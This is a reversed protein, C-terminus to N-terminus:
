RAALEQLVLNSKNLKCQNYSYVYAEFENYHVKSGCMPSWESNNKPNVIAGNILLQKVVNIHGMSAALHLATCDNEDRINVKVNSYQLLVEVVKDHGNMGALHLPTQKPIMPTFNINAGHQLLSKVVEHHGFAAALHLSTCEASIATTPANVEAGNKLM